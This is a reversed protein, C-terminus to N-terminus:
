FYISRNNSQEKYRGFYITSTDSTPMPIQLPFPLSSNRELNPIQSDHIAWSHGPPFFSGPYKCLTTATVSVSAWAGLRGPSHAWTHYYICTGLSDPDRLTCTHSHALTLAAHKLANHLCSPLKLLWPLHTRPVVVHLFAAVKFHRSSSYTRSFRTGM